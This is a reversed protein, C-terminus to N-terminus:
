LILLSLAFFSGHLSWFSRSLLDFADFGIVFYQDWDGVWLFFQLVEDLWGVFFVNVCNSDLWVNILKEFSIKM